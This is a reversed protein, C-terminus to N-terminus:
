TPNKPPSLELKAPRTIRLLGLGTLVLSVEALVIGALPLFHGFPGLPIFLAVIALVAILAVLAGVFRRRAQDSMSEPLVVANGPASIPAERYYEIAREGLRNMASGSAQAWVPIGLIPVFMTATEAAALLAHLPNKMRRLQLGIMSPLQRVVLWLRRPRSLQRSDPTSSGVSLLAQEARAVTDYGRQLMLIEAARAPDRPDRGHIAAIRLLLLVQELYLLTMAPVMGVYFSSGTIAGVERARRVCTRLTRRTLRDLQESTRDVVQEAQWQTARATVLPLAHLLALEPAHAPDHRLARWGLTPTLDTDLLAETRNPSV